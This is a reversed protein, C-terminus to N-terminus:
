LVLKNTDCQLVPCMFKCNVPVTEGSIKLKCSNIVYFKEVTEGSQIHNETTGHKM